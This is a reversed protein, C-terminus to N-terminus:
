EVINLKVPKRYPARLRPIRAEDLAKYFATKTVGLYVCADNVSMSRYVRELEERTVDKTTM